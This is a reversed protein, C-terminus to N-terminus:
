SRLLFQSKSGCICGRGAYSTIMNIVYRTSIHNKENGVKTKRGGVGTVEMVKRKLKAHM